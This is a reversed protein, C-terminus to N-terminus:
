AVRVLETAPEAETGPGTGQRSGESQGPYARSTLERLCAVQTQWAPSRADPVGSTPSSSDSRRKKTQPLRRRNM